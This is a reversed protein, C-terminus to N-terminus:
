RVVEDRHSPHDGGMSIEAPPSILRFMSWPGPIRFISREGGDSTM